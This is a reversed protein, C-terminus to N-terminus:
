NLISTFTTTLTIMLGCHLVLESCFLTTVMAYYMSLELASAVLKTMMIM